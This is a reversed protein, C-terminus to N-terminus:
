QVERIRVRATGQSRLKESVREAQKRNLYPGFMMSFRKKGDLVTTIIQRPEGMNLHVDAKRALQWNEFLGAEVRYLNPGMGQGTVSTPRTQSISGVSTIQHPNVAAFRYRQSGYGPSWAQHALFRREYRDDGNLPARGLYTVRVKATGKNKFGLLEASRRSLDIVRNHAYPGRDNIRVVITRGNQLNTVRGYVPMPLTPHAATLANMDYVEGNATRRGHFDTGYWSAIGVRDYSRDVRPVYRRGKIFYPNGVKYHGGGKPVPQGMSVVKPSYTSIKTRGPWSCSGIVVSVVLTVTLASWSPTYRFRPSSFRRNVDSIRFINRGILSKFPKRM